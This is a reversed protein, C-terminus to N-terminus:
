PWIRLGISVTPGVAMVGGTRLPGYGVTLGIRRTLARIRGVFGANNAPAQCVTPEQEVQDLRVQAWSPALVSVSAPRVGGRAATGCGIRVGLHLTDLAVRLGLVPASDGAAPTTHDVEISYPGQRIKESTGPRPMAITTDVTPVIVTVDARAVREEHLAGDLADARQAEQVARRQWVLGSDSAATTDVVVLRTTDHVADSSDSVLGADLTRHDARQLLAQQIVIVALILALRIMTIRPIKTM